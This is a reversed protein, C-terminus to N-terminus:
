KELIMSSMLVLIIVVFIMGHFIRLTTSFMACFWSAVRRRVISTDMSFDIENAPLKRVRDFLKRFLCEQRLFYGDLVWFAIFPFFALCTFYKQSNGAALAFLASVLTVSWGKLFFSNSSLRNVVGQIM